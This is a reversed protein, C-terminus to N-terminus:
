GAAKKPEAADMRARLSRIVESNQSAGYRTAENELWTMVDSPLRVTLPQLPQETKNRSMM